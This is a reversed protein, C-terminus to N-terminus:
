PDVGIKDKIEVTGSDDATVAITPATAAVVRRSIVVTAEEDGKYQGFYGRQDAQYIVQITPGRTSIVAAPQVAYSAAHLPMLTSAFQSLSVKIELSSFDPAFRTHGPRRPKKPRVLGISMRFMQCFTKM